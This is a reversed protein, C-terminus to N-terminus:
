TDTGRPMHRLNMRRLQYFGIGASDLVNHRLSKIPWSVRKDEGTRQLEALVRRNHIAKPTEGKWERPLYACTASVGNLGNVVGGIVTALMLLDDFDIKSGKSQYAQPFEAVFLVRGDAPPAVALHWNVYGQVAKAMSNTVDLRAASRGESKVLAAAYLETDKFVSVGCHKTGADLAVINM